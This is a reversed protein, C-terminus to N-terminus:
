GVGNSRLLDAQERVHFLTGFPPPQGQPRNSTLGQLKQVGKGYVMFKHSGEEYGM